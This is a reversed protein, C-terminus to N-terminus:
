STPTGPHTRRAKTLPGFQHYHLLLPSFSLLHTSLSFFLPCRNGSRDTAAQEAVVGTALSLLVNESAQLEYAPMPNLVAELVASSVQGQGQGHGNHSQLHAAALVLYECARQQLELHSSTSFKLFVEHIQSATQEPYLNLLKVFSTLLICQM